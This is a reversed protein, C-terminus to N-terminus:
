ESAPYKIFDQPTVVQISVANKPFDKVNQTIFAVCENSVATYFLIADELDSFSSTVAKSIDMSTTHILEILQNLYAISEAIRDRPHNNKELVYIITQICSISTCLPWKKEIAEMFFAKAHDSLKGRTLILDLFINTDVFLRNEM